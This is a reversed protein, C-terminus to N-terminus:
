FSLYMYTCHMLLKALDKITKLMECEYVGGKSAHRIIALLCWKIVSKFDSDSM